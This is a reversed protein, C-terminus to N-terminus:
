EKQMPMIVEIYDGERIVVPTNHANLELTITDKDLSAICELVYKYNLAFSFPNGEIECTVTAELKNDDLECSLILNGDKYDFATYNAVWKGAGKYVIGVTELAEKLEQKDMTIKYPLGRKISDNIIADADPFKGDILITYLITSLNIVIKAYDTNAIIHADEKSLKLYTNLTAAPIICKLGENQHYQPHKTIRYGDTCTVYDTIYAGQLIPQAEDTSTAHICREIAQHNLVGHFTTDGEDMTIHIPFEDPDYGVLKSNNVQLKYDIRTYSSGTNIEEKSDQLIINGKMKKVIENLIKYPVVAAGEEIVQGAIYVLLGQEANTTYLTICNEKGEIKVGEWIPLTARKSAAYGAKKLGQQLEKSEIQLKM